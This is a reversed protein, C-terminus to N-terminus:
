VAFLTETDYIRYYKKELRFFESSLVMKMPYWRCVCVFLSGGTLLAIFKGFKGANNVKRHVYEYEILSRVYRDLMRDFQAILYVDFKMKGHQTFFWNWKDRGSAQWSRADFHLQAEDIILIIQGEKVKKGCWIMHSIYHQAFKALRYPEIASNEIYIFKGKKRGRIKKINIPFNCIIICEKYKLNNYIFRAMHLSKGSRPTGSFLNIM